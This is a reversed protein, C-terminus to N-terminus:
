NIEEVVQQLFYRAIPTPRFYKEARTIMQTRLKDLKDPNQVLHRYKKVFERHSDFVAYECLETIPYESVDIEPRAMMVFCGCSLAEWPRKSDWFPWTDIGPYVLIQSDNLVEFYAEYLKWRHYSHINDDNKVGYSIDDPYYAKGRVEENHVKGPLIQLRDLISIFWRMWSRRKGPGPIHTLNLSREDLSRDKALQDYQDHIGFPIYHSETEATQKQATFVVDPEYGSLSQVWRYPMLERNKIKTPPDYEYREQYEEFKDRRHIGLGPNDDGDILVHSYSSLDYKNYYEWRTGWHLNSLM